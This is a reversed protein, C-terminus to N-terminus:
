SSQRVPRRVHVAQAGVFVVSAIKLDRGRTLLPVLHPDSAYRAGQAEAEAFAADIDAPKADTPLYKLEILWAYRAVPVLPSVGLFLDCYGQAFEKESLPHFIRSLSIFTMLMLKIAKESLQRLDKLGMAKVVRAHFLDLFPAIDGEVAMRRLAEELDETRLEIGEQEKLALALHSWQLERIVRNPIELRLATTDPPSAGLTLMGLYYLLSLFQDQSSLSKVGFQELLRGHVFGDSLAAQLLARRAASGTGTLLGLRQLRGYDTRVNPDLMEAPARRVRVLERLFYLVMDANFVRETADPSFRYGDYYQELLGLLAERDTLGPAGALDPSAGLLEGVAREVDARTFGALTSLRQDQSVNFAINFGSALDDLLLPSVGTILMRGVAGSRTGTKLTRYFTRIFGTREVVSSYLDEEGASLLSNAFTDYEDVLVYLAHGSASIISMLTSLIAEPEQLSSLRDFLWSLTPIRDQHKLVFELVQSRVAELFSRRLGGVGGDSGVASFDLFLVLYAGREPTPYAHIWLGDFLADFQDARRLDYYHELMSLLLSKGMRRPRLFLLYRYAADASELVPLFPTKDAYFYGGRRVDGFNSMGYPIKM